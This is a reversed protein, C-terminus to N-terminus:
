DWSRRRVLLVAYITVISIIEFAAGLYIVMQFNPSRMWAIRLCGLWTGCNSQSGVAVLTWLLVAATGLGLIVAPWLVVSRKRVNM